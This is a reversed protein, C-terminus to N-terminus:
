TTLTINVNTSKNTGAIESWEDRELRALVTDQSDKMSIEYRITDHTTCAILIVRDEHASPSYSLPGLNSCVPTLPMSFSMVEFSPVALRDNHDITAQIFGLHHKTFYAIVSRSAGSELAVWPSWALHSAFCDTKDLDELIFQTDAKVAVEGRGIDIESVIKAGYGTGRIRALASQPTLSIIIIKLEDNAVAIYHPPEEVDAGSQSTRGDSPGWAFSRIRQYRRKSIVQEAKTLRHSAANSLGWNGAIVHNVTLVRQFNSPSFRPLKLSAWLSLVCNSTLTALVCWGFPGLGPSSWELAIMHSLSLEEGVSFNKTEIPDKLPVQSSSFQSTMLRTPQQWLEHWKETVKNDWTAIRPSQM